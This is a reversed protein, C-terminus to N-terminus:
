EDRKYIHIRTSVSYNKTKPQTDRSTASHIGRIHPPSGYLVRFTGASPTYEGYTRPHAPCPRRYDLGCRTNGTHAPTLRSALRNLLCTAPIGRIHPPSGFAPVTVQIKAGYEGYTRPHAWFSFLDHVPKETNGTHAPILGDHVIDDRQDAHKGRTHPSSGLSTDPQTSKM